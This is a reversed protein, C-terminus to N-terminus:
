AARWPTFHPTVHLASFRVERPFPFLSFDPQSILNHSPLLQQGLAVLCLHTGWSPTPLRTISSHFSASVEPLAQFRKGVILYLQLQPGSFFVAMFVVVRFSVDHRVFVSVRRFANWCHEPWGSLVCPTDM